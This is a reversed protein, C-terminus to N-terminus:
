FISKKEKFTSKTFERSKFISQFRRLTLTILLIHFFLLFHGNNFTTSSYDNNCRHRSIFPPPFPSPGFIIIFSQLLTDSFM